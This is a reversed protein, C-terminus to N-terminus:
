NNETSLAVILFHLKTNIIKFKTDDDNNSMVSTKTCGLEVYIKCNTLPM